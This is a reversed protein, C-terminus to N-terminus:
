DFVNVNLIKFLIFFFFCFFFFYPPFLFHYSYSSCIDCFILIDLFIALSCWSSQITYSLIMKNNTKGNLIIAAISESSNIQKDCDFDYDFGAFFFVNRCVSILLLLLLLLVSFLFRYIFCIWKFPMQQQMHKLQFWLKYMHCLLNNNTSISIARYVCM